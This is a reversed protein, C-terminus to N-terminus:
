LLRHPLELSSCLWEPAMIPWLLNSSIYIHLYGAFVNYSGKVKDLSILAQM